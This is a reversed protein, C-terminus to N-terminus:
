TKIQLLLYDFLRETYKKVSKDDCILDVLGNIEIAVDPSMGIDCVFNTRSTISPKESFYRQLSDHWLKVDSKHLNFEIEKEMVNSFYQIIEKWNSVKEFCVQDEYFKVAQTIWRSDPLLEYVDTQALYDNRVDDIWCHLRQGSKFDDKDVESSFSSVKFHTTEREIIGLYRIDPFSTGVYFEQPEEIRDNFLLYKQAFYIHTIPAAM